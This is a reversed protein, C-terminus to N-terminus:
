LIVPIATNSICELYSLEIQALYKFVKRDNDKTKCWIWRKNEISPIENLIKLYLELEVFYTKDTYFIVIVFRWSDWFNMCRFVFEFCLLCRGENCKFNSWTGLIFLCGWGVPRVWLYRVDYIKRMILIFVRYRIICLTFMAAM